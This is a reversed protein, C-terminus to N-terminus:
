TRDYGARQLSRYVRDGANSLLEVFFKPLQPKFCARYSIEHLSHAQRQKSTWFEGTYRPISKGGADIDQVHSMRYNIEDMLREIFSRENLPIKSKLPSM